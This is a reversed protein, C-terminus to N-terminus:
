LAGIVRKGDRFPFCILHYYYYYRFFVAHSLKLRLYAKWFRNMVKIIAIDVLSIATFNVCAVLKGKKVSKLCSAEYVSAMVDGSDM